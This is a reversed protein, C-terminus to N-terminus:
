LLWRRRLPLDRPLDDHHQRRWRPIRLQGGDLLCADPCQVFGSVEDGTQHVPFGAMRRGAPLNTLLLGRPLTPYLQTAEHLRCVQHDLTKAAMDHLGRQSLHGYRARVPRLGDASWWAKDM